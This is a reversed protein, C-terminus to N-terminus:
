PNSYTMISHSRLIQAEVVFRPIERASAPQSRLETDSPCFVLILYVDCAIRYREKKRKQCRTYIGQTFIGAETQNWRYSPMQKQFKSINKQEPL